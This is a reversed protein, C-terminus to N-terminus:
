MAERCVIVVWVYRRRGVDELSEFCSGCQIGVYLQTSVCVKKMGCGESDQVLIWMPEGCVMVGGCVRENWYGWSVRILFWM